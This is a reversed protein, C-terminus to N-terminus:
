TAEAMDHEFRTKPHGEVACGIREQYVPDMPPLQKLPFWAVEVSEEDAVHATGSLYRCRFLHDLYYVEDGNVHVTLGSANVWALSEIEVRVGTEEAVERAAAVAPQEGPDVIGTVPTWALSDSRQILLVEDGRLVVATVAPLWLPSHGVHTRLALVFDPVPM